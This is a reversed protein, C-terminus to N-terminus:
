EIWYFIELWQFDRSVTGKIDYVTTGHGFKVMAPALILFFTAGSGSGFNFLKQAAVCPLLPLSAFLSTSYIHGFTNGVTGSGAKILYPVLPKFYGFRKVYNLRLIKM